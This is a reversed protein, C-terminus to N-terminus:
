PAKVNGGSSEHKNLQPPNGHVTIDGGSSADGNASASAFVDVDAGSSAEAEVTNCRLDSTEIDAGSSADVDLRGCTGSLEIDAGSSASIRVDQLTLGAGDLDSGSSVNIGTYNPATVTIVAHGGGNFWNFSMSNKRGIELTDGHVEIKMHDLVDQPGEATVSFPGQKLVVNVGASASVKSFNELSYTKTTQPGAATAVCGALAIAAIPAILMFKSM